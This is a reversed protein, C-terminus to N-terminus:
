GSLMLLQAVPLCTQVLRASIKPNMWKFWRGDPVFGLELANADYLAEMGKRIREFARKRADPVLEPSVFPHHYCYLSAARPVRIERFEQQYAYTQCAEIFRKPWAGLDRPVDTRAVGQMQQIYLTDRTAYLSMCLAPRKKGRIRRFVSIAVPADWHMFSREIPGQGPWFRFQLRVEAVWPHRFSNEIIPLLKGLRKSRSKAWIYRVFFQIRRRIKALPSRSIELAKNAALEM